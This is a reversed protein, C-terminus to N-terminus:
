ATFSQSIVSVQEPSEPCTSGRSEVKLPKIERKVRQAYETLVNCRHTSELTRRVEVFLITVETLNVLYAASLKLFFFFIRILVASDESHSLLVTYRVSPGSSHQLTCSLLSGTYICRPALYTKCECCNWHPDLLVLLLSTWFFNQATQRNGRDSLIQLIPSTRSHSTSCLPCLSPFSHFPHPCISGTYCATLKM